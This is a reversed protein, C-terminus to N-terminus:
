EPRYEVRSVCKGSTAWSVTIATESPAQLFPGHTITLATTAPVANTASRIQYEANAAQCTAFATAALLAFVRLASTLTSTMGSKAPETHHTMMLRQQIRLRISDMRRDERQPCITVVNHRFRLICSM